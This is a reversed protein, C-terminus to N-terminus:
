KQTHCYSDYSKLADYLFLLGYFIMIILQAPSDVDGKVDKQVMVIVSGYKM